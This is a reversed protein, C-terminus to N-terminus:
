SELPENANNGTLKPGDSAVEDKSINDHVEQKNLTAYPIQLGEDSLFHVGSILGRADLVVIADRSAHPYIHSDAIRFQRTPLMNELAIGNSEAMLIQSVEFVIPSYVQLCSAGSTM